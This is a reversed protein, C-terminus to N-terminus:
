AGLVVITVAFVLQVAVFFSAKDECLKRFLADVMSSRTSHISYQHTLRQYETSCGSHWNGSEVGVDACLPRAVQERVM